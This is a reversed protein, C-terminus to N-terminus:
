CALLERMREDGSLVTLRPRPRARMDGGIARSLRDSKQQRARRNNETEICHKKKQATSRIVWVFVKPM